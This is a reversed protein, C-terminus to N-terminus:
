IEFIEFLLHLGVRDDEGVIGVVSDTQQKPEKEKRRNITAKRKQGGRHHPEISCGFLPRNFPRASSHLIVVITFVMKRKDLCLCTPKRIGRRERGHGPAREKEDTENSGSRLGDITKKGPVL